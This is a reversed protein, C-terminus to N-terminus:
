LPINGNRRQPREHIKNINCKLHKILEIRTKAPEIIADVFGRESARQPSMFIKNYEGIKENKVAVPDTGEAIEKRYLIEVAGEAGMVAIQASPWALCVDGGIHKSNMVIYAGGFAKKMIVTIKPVVAECYAYMLKAGHNIIGSYEQKTGPMFGPVDVFTIIPINFSNCFRVFRAGKRSADTDLAGALFMSQNALIGVTQGQLRAFGIILNKAFKNHVEMFTDKDFVSTIVKKTDFVGKPDVPIIQDLEPCVRDPSDNSEIYPPKDLCSDPIYSLLKKTGNIAEEDSKYFFHAVGSKTSHIMAGGLTETDVEEFLVTKVVKPGTLFMYSQKSVMGVFDTLAPSYVAGGACPGFIISIQPIIGSWRVNRFFIEGYGGLSDVGEQIRAGGSDNMCIIPKRNQGALEQIRQIKRAHMEGLSGGIVSFDQAFAFVTRGNITGYGTIVGDGAPRKKDMGFDTSRHKVESGIEVFSGPDFLLELRKQATLKTNEDGM